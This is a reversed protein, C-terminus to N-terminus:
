KSIEKHENRMVEVFDGKEVLGAMQEETLALVHTAADKFAKLEDDDINDRDSKAFGYM